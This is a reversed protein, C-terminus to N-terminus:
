RRGGPRGSALGANATPASREAKVHGDAYAVNGFSLHRPAFSQLRDSANPVALTSEFLAPQNAPAPVNALSRGHLLANYGYAPIAPQFSPCATIAPSKHYVAISTSWNTRFPYKEDYDQAYMLMATSLQKLNSQCSTKRAAERARAFVPFLIAALIAALAIGLV